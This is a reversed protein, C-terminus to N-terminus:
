SPLGLVFVAPIKHLYETNHRWEKVLRRDFKEDECSINSAVLLCYSEPMRSSLEELLKVNRYPTEIFVQTEGSTLGERISHFIKQRNKPEFPLYGYFRFQQGNFGSSMLALSISNLGDLPKIRIHNRHAFDVCHSGPDALCPTGADSLLGVDKGTLCNVFFSGLEEKRMQKDMLHFLFEDQHKPHGINKLYARASKESEVIFEDLQYIFELHAPPIFKRAPNGLFNSILFLRGKM